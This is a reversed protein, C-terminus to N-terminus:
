VGLKAVPQRDDTHTTDGIPFARRLFNARPCLQNLDVGAKNVFTRCQDIFRNLCDPFFQLALVFTPGSLPGKRPVFGTASRRMTRPPLGRKPQESYQELQRSFLSFFLD